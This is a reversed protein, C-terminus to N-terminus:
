PKRIAVGLKDRDHEVGGKRERLVYRQAKQNATRPIEDIFEIVQPVMFFPLHDVCYEFLERAEVQTSAKLQV